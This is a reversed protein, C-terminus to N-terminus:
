ESDVMGQQLAASFLRAALYKEDDTLDEKAEAKKVLYNVPDTEVSPGVPLSSGKRGVGEEREPVLAKQVKEDVAATLREEFKALLDGLQEATIGKQVNAADDKAQARQAAETLMAVLDLEDNDMDTDGQGLTTAHEDPLGLAKQVRGFIATPNVPYAAITSELLTDAKLYRKGGGPLPAYRPFNGTFSMGALNGKTIQYKAEQNDVRARVWVGSGTTPLSAFDSPDHPHAQTELVKGARLIAAKQLHGVPIAELNHELSLPASRAFYDALPGGQFAEPETIDKQLDRAPTSMWGEIIIDEGDAWSKVIMGQTAKPNLAKTVTHAHHLMPDAPDDPDHGNGEDAEDEGDFTPVIGDAEPHRHPVGYLHLDTHAEHPLLHTVGQRGAAQVIRGRTYTDGARYAESLIGRMADQSAKSTMQATKPLHSELGHARAYARIRARVADPNAAHGALDWAAKLLSPKLPFSGHPGAHPLRKREAASVSKKVTPM